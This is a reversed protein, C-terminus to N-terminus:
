RPIGLLPNDACRGICSNGTLLLYRTREDKGKGQRKMLDELDRYDEQVLIRAVGRGDLIIVSKSSESWLPNPTLRSCSM